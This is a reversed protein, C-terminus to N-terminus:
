NAQELLLRYRRRARGGGEVELDSGLAKKIRELNKQVASGSDDLGTSLEDITLPLGRDIMLRLLRVQAPQLQVFRGSRVVKGSDLHLEGRSRLRVVPGVISMLVRRVQEYAAAIRHERDGRQYVTPEGIEEISRLASRLESAISAPLRTRGVLLPEGVVVEALQRLVRRPAPSLFELFRVSRMFHEFALTTDSSPWQLCLTAFDLELYVTERRLSKEDALAIAHRLDAEAEDYRGHRRHLDARRGLADVLLEPTGSAAEAEEVLKAFIDSAENDRGLLTYMMGERLRLTREVRENPKRLLTERTKKVWELGEVPEGVIGSIRVLDAATTAAREWAQNAIASEYASKMHARASVFDDMLEALHARLATVDAERSALSLEGLRLLDADDIFRRSGEYDGVKLSSYSRRHLAQFRQWPPLGSYEPDSELAEFLKLTNPYEGRLYAREAALWREDIPAGPDGLSLGDTLVLVQDRDRREAARLAERLREHKTEPRAKKTTRPTM